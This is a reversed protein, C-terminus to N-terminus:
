TSTLQAGSIQESNYDARCVKGKRLSCQLLALGSNIAPVSRKVTFKEAPESLNKKDSAQWLLKKGCCRKPPLFFGAFSAKPRTRTVATNEGSIVTGSLGCRVKM